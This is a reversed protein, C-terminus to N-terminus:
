RNHEDGYKGQYVPVSKYVRDFKLKSVVYELAFLVFKNILRCYFLIYKIRMQFLSKFIAKCRSDESITYFDLYILM